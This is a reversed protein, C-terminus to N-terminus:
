AIFKDTIFGCGPLMEIKGGVAVTPLGAGVRVTVPVPKTVSEWTFTFPLARVVFYWLAVVSCTARVAASTACVPVSFRVTTFGGGPPPLEAAAFTTTPFGTGPDIETDGPVTTTPLPGEVIRMDPVPNTALEVTSTFELMRVGVAIPAVEMCSGNSALSTAWPPASSIATDFGAGPPPIEGATRKTTSSSRSLGEPVVVSEIAAPCDALKASANEDELPVM